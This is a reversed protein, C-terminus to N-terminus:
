EHGVAFEILSCRLTINNVNKRVPCGAKIFHIFSIPTIFLLPIQLIEDVNLLIASKYIFKDQILFPHIFQDQNQTQM